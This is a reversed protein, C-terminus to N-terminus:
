KLPVGNDCACKDPGEECDPCVLGAMGNEVQWKYLQPMSKYWRFIIKSIHELGETTKEQRPKMGYVTTDM